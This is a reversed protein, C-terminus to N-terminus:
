EMDDIDLLEVEEYISGTKRVASIFYDFRGKSKYYGFWRMIDSPYIYCVARKRLTKVLISNPIAAGVVEYEVDTKRLDCVNSDINFLFRNMSMVFNSWGEDIKRRADEMTHLVCFRFLDNVVSEEYDEIESSDMFVMTQIITAYNKHLLWKTHKKKIRKNM